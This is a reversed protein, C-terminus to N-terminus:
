KLFLTLQEAAKGIEKKIDQGEVVSEIMDGFIRDVALNDPQYWSRATLAQDLFVSLEPNETKQWLLLDRRATPHGTAKLYSKINESESLFTLFEWAEKPYKSTSAVTVGWYNPYNVAVSIGKPQPLPAVAFNLRSAKQELTPIHHSYNIMMAVKGAYFSDISYHMNKNWTYVKKLPNAFDTYFELARAGPSINEGGIKIEKKFTIKQNKGDIIDTGSQLMLASLVDTSRNINKATGLAVGAQVIDGKDNIETLKPVVEIFDEWTSPPQPVMKKNFIDKNWYIALTDVYLPLAYIKNDDIFDQSVVDVFSNKFDYPTIYKFEKEKGPIIQPMPYIKDKHKPLSTNQIYFMDPGEGSALANVLDKEYELYDRSFYKIECNKHKKEYASIIEDFAKHDDFIGWITLKYSPGVPTKLGPIVGTILLLVFIIIASISAIIIIHLKELMGIKGLLALRSRRSLRLEIPQM